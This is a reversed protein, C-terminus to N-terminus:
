TIHGNTILPPSPRDIFHHLTPRQTTHSHFLKLAINFLFFLSHTTNFFKTCTHSAISALTINIHHTTTLANFVTDCISKSVILVGMKGQHSGTRGLLPMEALSLLFTRISLDLSRSSLRLPDYSLGVRVSVISQEM